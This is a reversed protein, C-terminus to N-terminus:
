FWIRWWIFNRAAKMLKFSIFFYFVGGDIGLSHIRPYILCGNFVNIRNWLPMIDHTLWWWRKWAIFISSASVSVIITINLFWWVFFVWCDIWLTHIWPYILSGNFVYVRKWLPMINNTFSRWRKWAIFVSGFSISIVIAINLFWILILFFIWSYIRLPHIWPNVLCGNFVNIWKRLPM